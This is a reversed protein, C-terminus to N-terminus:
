KHYERWSSCEYSTTGAEININDTQNYVRGPVNKTEDWDPTTTGPACRALLMGTLEFDVTFNAKINTSDSEDYETEIWEGKNTDSWVWAFIKCGDKTIWDPLKEITYTITEGEPISPDINESSDPLTTDPTSTDPVTTDPAETDPTEGESTSPKTKDVLWRAYLSTDAKIQTDLAFNVLCESDVFWGKFFYGDRKPNTPRKIKHGYNVIETHYVTDTGDNLYYTVTYPNACEETSPTHDNSVSNGENTACGVLSFICFSSLVLKLFKNKM